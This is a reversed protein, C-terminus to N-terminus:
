KTYRWASVLGLGYVVTQVAQSANPGTASEGFGVTLNAFWFGGYITSGAVVLAWWAWREHRRLPGFVILLSVVSLGVAVSIHGLLHNQAHVPWDEALHRTAAILAVLITAVLPLGLLTSTLRM